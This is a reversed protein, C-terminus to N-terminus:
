SQLANLIAIAKDAHRARIGYDFPTHVLYPMLHVMDKDDDLIVFSDVPEREYNDLWHQIEHGRELERYDGNGRCLRPTVDICDAKVGWANLRERTKMLGDLRWTSSVVIVAGTTDTIRNLEAVCSPYGGPRQNEPSYACRPIIPGDFDLFVVKM